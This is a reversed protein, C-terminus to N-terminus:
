AAGVLYDELAIEPLGEELFIALEMHASADRALLRATLTSGSVEEVVAPLIHRSDDLPHILVLDIEEHVQHVHTAELTVRGDLFDCEVFRVLEEFEEFVILEQHVKRAPAQPIAAAVSPHQTVPAEADFRRISETVFYSWTREIESANAYFVVGLAPVGERGKVAVHRTVMGLLNLPEPQQPLCVHMSILQREPVARTLSLLVGSYSADLTEGVIKQGYHPVTVPLSLPVRRHRRRKSTIYHSNYIKKMPQM